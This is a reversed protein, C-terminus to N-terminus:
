TIKKKSLAFFMKKEFFSIVFAKCNFKPRPAPVSDSNLENEVSDKTDGPHLLFKDSKSMRCDYCSRVFYVLSKMLPSYLFRGYDRQLDCSSKQM